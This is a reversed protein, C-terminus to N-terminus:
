SSGRFQRVLEQLRELAQARTSIEGNLQADRLINLIEKFKPGPPLGTAKLDDGTVLPLPNLEEASWTRLRERCFEVATLSRGESLAQAQHLALLDEIGTHALLPKLKALPLSPADRLDAHHNLLWSLEELEQNSLRWKEAFAQRWKRQQLHGIIEGALELLLVALALSFGTEAPLHSLAAFTAQETHLDPLIPRLLGLRNVLLMAERRTPHTLMKRMEDTIREASVVTIQAAMAGIATETSPDIRLQFRSAFRIARLLRLKDETFREVPDGIARLVKAELDSKGGVYDIVKEELPDFFMGNITFDRRLADAEATGFTVADPHRGDTYAGDSRFTAVQVQLQPEPGLVEIVGFQAGVAITRRFLKQVQPPRANTAVDYDHPELGLLHDRVCGGAWLAEYGHSRLREVVSRAFERPTM